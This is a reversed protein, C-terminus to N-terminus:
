MAEKQNGNIGGIFPDEVFFNYPLLLAPVFLKNKRLTEPCM